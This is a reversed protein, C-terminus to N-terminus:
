VTGMIFNFTEDPWLATTPNNSYLSYADELSMTSKGTRTNV